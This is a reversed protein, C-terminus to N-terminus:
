YLTFYYFIYITNDFHQGYICICSVKENCIYIFIINNKKKKPLGSVKNHEWKKYTRLMYDIYTYFIIFGKPSSFSCHSKYAFIIIIFCESFNLLWEWEITWLIENEIANEIVCKADDFHKYIFIIRTEVIVDQRKRVLLVRSDRLPRHERILYIYINYNILLRKIRSKLQTNMFSSMKGSEFM